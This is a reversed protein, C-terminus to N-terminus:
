NYGFKEHKLALQRAKELQRFAQEKLDKNYLIDAKCIFKNTLVSTSQYYQDLSELIRDYLYFKLYNIQKHFKEPLRKFIKKEDYVTMGDMIDFLKMYANKDGHVHLSNVKRIYGKESKTLTHILELLRDKQNM